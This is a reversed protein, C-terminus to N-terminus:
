FNWNKSYFQSVKGEEPNYDYGHQLSENAIRRKEAKIFSNSFLVKSTRVKRSGPFVRHLRETEIWVVEREEGVYKEPLKADEHILVVQSFTVLFEWPNQVKPDKEHRVWTM